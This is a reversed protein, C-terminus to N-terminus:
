RPLEVLWTFELSRPQSHFRPGLTAIGCVLGFGLPSVSCFWSHFRPGLIAIGCVLYFGFLSVSGFRSQFRPGLIAIECIQLKLGHDIINSNFLRYVRFWPLAVWTAEARGELIKFLPHREQGM